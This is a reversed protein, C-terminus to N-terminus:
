KICIHQYFTEDYGPPCKIPFAIAMHHLPGPEIATAISDAFAASQFLGINLLVSFALIKKIM